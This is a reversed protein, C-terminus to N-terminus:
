KANGKEKKTQNKSYVKGLKYSGYFVLLVFLLLTSFWGQGVFNVARGIIGPTSCPECSGGCDMGVEDCNKLSDSCHTLDYTCYDFKPITTEPVTTTTILTPQTSCLPAQVCEKCPPCPGGCDVDSEGQNRLGDSCTPKIPCLECPGGCDIGREGQNQLGDDCTACPECPGGCD